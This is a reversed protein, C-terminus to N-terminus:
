SQRFYDSPKPTTARERWYTGASRDFTRQLPDYGCVRGIWGLPTFVGYYAVVLVVYSVALGIPFTAYSLGVFTWRVIRPALLWLGPMVMALGALATALGSQAHRKASWAGVGTVVAWAVAFVLLQRRSPNRELRLLSM